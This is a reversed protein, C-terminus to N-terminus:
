LFEVVESIIWQNENLGMKFYRKNLGDMYYGKANGDINKVDIETEFIINGKESYPLEGTYLKISKLKFSQFVNKFSVIFDNLKKADEQTLLKPNQLRFAEEIQGKDISDIWKKIIDEQVKMNSQELLKKIINNKDDITSVATEKDTELKTNSQKLSEIQRNLDDMETNKQLIQSSFNDYDVKRANKDISQDEKLAAVQEKFSDVQQGRVWLFYNFLIFITLILTSVLILVFKRM